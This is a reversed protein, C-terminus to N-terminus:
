RTVWWAAAYLLVAVAATWALAKLLGDVPWTNM